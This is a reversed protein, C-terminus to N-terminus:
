SSKKISDNKMTKNIIAPNQETDIKKEVERMKIKLDDRFKMEVLNSEIKVTEVSNTQVELEYEEITKILGTRKLHRTNKM